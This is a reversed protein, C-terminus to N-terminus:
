WRSVADGLEHGEARAVTCAELAVTRERLTAWFDEGPKEPAFLWMLHQYTNDGAIQEAELYPINGTIQYWHYGFPTLVETLRTEVRGALVECLIWPRHAAITKAAGALVDPETTETDVKIVAPVVGTRAVYSDLREVPVKIQVSSRRFGAALSNSTDTIDSLYLTASGNEAGLALSETTYSLNNDAAFRRAIDALAPSPEFACVRRETLASALAAYIGVNAGVDLVAGPGAVDTAALFCALSEREYGALGQEDLRWPVFLNKPATM